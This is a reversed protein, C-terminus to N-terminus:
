SVLNLVLFIAAAAVSRTLIGLWGLNTTGFALQVSAGVNWISLALMLLVGLTSVASENIVFILMALLAVLALISVLAMCAAAIRSSISVAASAEDM